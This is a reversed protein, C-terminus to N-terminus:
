LSFYERHHLFSIMKSPHISPHISPYISDISPILTAKNSVSSKYHPLILDFEGSRLLVRVILRDVCIIKLCLRSGEMRPVVKLIVYVPLFIFLIYKFKFIFYMYVKFAVVYVTLYMVAFNYVTARFYFSASLLWRLVNSFLVNLILAVCGLPRHSLPKSYTKIILHSREFNWPGTEIYLHQRVM